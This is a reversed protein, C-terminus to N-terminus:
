ACKRAGAEDNPSGQRCRPHARPWVASRASAAPSASSRAPRTRRLICRAGLGVGDESDPNVSLGRWAALAQPM